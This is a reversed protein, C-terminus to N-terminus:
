SWFVAALAAAVIALYILMPRSGFFGFAGLPDDDSRTPSLMPCEEDCLRCATPTPCPKRGQECPGACSM